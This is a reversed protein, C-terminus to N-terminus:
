PLSVECSTVTDAFVGANFRAMDPFGSPNPGCDVTDGWYVWAGPIPDRSYITDQGSQGYLADGGQGGDLFDDGGGSGWLEDFVTDDGAEGYMEDNGGLGLILDNGGGGKLSNAGNDGFLTDGHETGIVNQVNVLSESQTGSVNPDDDEPGGGVGSLLTVSVGSAREDRDYCVSYPCYASAVAYSVTNDEGRGGDITDAGSEGHIVDAFESGFCTPGDLEGILTDNGSGGFLQDNGCGGIILDDGVGGYAIIPTSVLNAADIRAPNYDANVVVREVGAQPCLARRPDFDYADCGTGEEWSNGQGDDDWLHSSPDNVDGAHFIEIAGGNPYITVDLHPDFGVFFELIWVTKSNGTGTLRVFAAACTITPVVAVIALTVLTCAAKSLSPIRM